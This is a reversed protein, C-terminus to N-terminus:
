GINFCEKFFKKLSQLGSFAKGLFSGQLLDVSSGDSNQIQASGTKTGAFTELNGSATVTINTANEKLYPARIDIIKTSNITIEGSGDEALIRINKAKIIIDGNSAELHINGNKAYIIKAPENDQVKDGVYEFATKPTREIRTGDNQMITSNGGDTTTAYDILNDGCFIGSHFAVKSLTEIDFNNTKQKSM